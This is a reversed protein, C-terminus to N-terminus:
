NRISQIFSSINEQLSGEQTLAKVFASGIIAGSGHNCASAFTERDHIGFGIVGPNQLKMGAVRQFYAQSQEALGITKGTTSATSVMYIFGNTHSDIERIREEPTQPTILFVKSLNYKAFLEKYEEVYERLPLDPLIVGDIGVESAKQCFPEVGYQMVPNLYGMLVLPIQTKQRIDQLQEFLKSITMGNQLAVTSSQQITPGDALPDSFPMGVEIMDVGNKELELIIAETDNLNPYGATFYVSLLGKPKQEFLNRIRNKM